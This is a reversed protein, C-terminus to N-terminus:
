VCSTVPELGTTEVMRCISSKHLPLVGSESETQPPEFGEDEALFHLYGKLPIQMKEYRLSEFGDLHLQGTSLQEDGARRHRCRLKTSDRMRNGWFDSRMGAGGNKLFATPRTTIPFCLLFGFARSSEPNQHGAPSENGSHSACRLSHSTDLWWDPCDVPSDWKIKRIELSLLGSVWIPM